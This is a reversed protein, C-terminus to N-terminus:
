QREHDLVQQLWAAFPKPSIGISILLRSAKEYRARCIEECMKAYPPHKPKGNGNRKAKGNGNSWGPCWHPLKYPLESKSEFGYRERYVAETIEVQNM